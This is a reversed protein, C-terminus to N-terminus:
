DGMIEESGDKITHLFVTNGSDKFEWIVGNDVSKVVGSQGVIGREMAQYLEREMFSVIGLPEGGSDIRGMYHKMWRDFFLISYQNIADPSVKFIKQDNSIQYRVKLGDLHERIANGWEREINEAGLMWILYKIKRDDIMESIKVGRFQGFGITDNITKAKGKKQYKNKGM